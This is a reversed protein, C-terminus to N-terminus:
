VKNTHDLLSVDFSSGNDLLQFLPFERGTGSDSVIRQIIVIDELSIPFDIHRLANREAILDQFAIVIVWYCTV